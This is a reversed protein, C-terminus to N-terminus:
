IKRDMTQSLNEYKKELFKNTENNTMDFNHLIQEYLKEIEKGDMPTKKDRGSM